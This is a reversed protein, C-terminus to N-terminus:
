LSRHVGGMEKDTVRQCDASQSDASYDVPDAEASGEGIEHRFAVGFPCGCFILTSM